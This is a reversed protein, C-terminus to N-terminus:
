AFKAERRGMDELLQRCALLYSERCRENGYRDRVDASIGEARIREAELDSLSAVLADALGIVDGPEVLDQYRGLIDTIGGASTAVVPVGLGAAEYVVQPSAEDVSAQVFVDAAGILSLVDDDWGLFRVHDDLSLDSVMARLQLLADESGTGAIQLEADVGADVVLRLARILTPYDKEFKLNGVAVLMYTHRCTGRIRTAHKDDLTLGDWDRGNTAHYLHNQPCGEALLTDRVSTSTAVVGDALRIIARDALVRLRKRILHHFLNHHRVPMVAPRRRLGLAACTLMMSAHHGHSQIVDAGTNRLFKRLRIVLRLPSGTGLVHLSVGAGRLLSAFDGTGQDLCVFEVTRDRGNSGIAISALIDNRGETSSVLQVIRM